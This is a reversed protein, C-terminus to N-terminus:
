KSEEKAIDAGEESEDEKKGIKEVEIATLDIAVPATEEEEKAESIAVITDTPEIHYLEVGKPLVVDSVHIVSDISVLSSIDIIFEHPFASPEGEVSLEHMVQILVHGEKVAQSEGILQIPIQGALNDVWILGSCRM